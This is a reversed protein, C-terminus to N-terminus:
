LKFRKYIRSLNKLYIELNFCKEIESKNLYKNTTEDKLLLSQFDGAGKWVQMAVNQVIQYAEERTLGKRTLELLIRGSFILGGTANLNEKMKEPYVGLNEVIFQFRNLMYDILITGDPIVVREVSSHSIDRENWLNINEFAALAYSRILRSLGCIQECTVPNRKHPMASSGKQGKTFPEELEYIETRQLSRIETAFKELSGALIALAAMFQAHRDRQIIQNSIPAPKLGLKRCVYEEVYPDILAYTGVAGSLKGYSIIERAEEVRQRNRELEALWLTLKFGLTIPEAHVGHTRGVMVTKKHIKAKDRVSKIVRKLDDLIIDSAERMQISLITDLVDNSTLGHHIYKSDSGIYESVNAIFALLEHKVRAEIKNIKKLDFRAKNKINKLSKSPIHGLEALAECSLIEIELMKQFRNEPSWIKAMDPLTYREIM